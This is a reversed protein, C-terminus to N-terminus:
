ILLCLDQRRRRSDNREYNLKETYKANNQIAKYIFDKTKRKTAQLFDSETIYPRWQM